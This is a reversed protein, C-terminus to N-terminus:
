VSTQITLALQRIAPIRGSTKWDEICWMSFYCMLAQIHPWSYSLMGQHITCQQCYKHPWVTIYDIRLARCINRHTNNFLALWARISVLWPNENRLVITHMGWYILRIIARHWLCKTPNIHPHLPDPNINGFLHYEFTCLFPHTLEWTNFNVAATKLYWVYLHM